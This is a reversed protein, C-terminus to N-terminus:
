SRIASWATLMASRTTNMAVPSYLRSWIRSSSSSSQPAGSGAIFRPAPPRRGRPAGPRLGRPRRAGHAARHCARLLVRRSACAAPPRIGLESEARSWAALEVEVRMPVLWGVRLGGFLRRVPSSSVGSALGVLATNLAIANARCEICGDGREVLHDLVTAAEAVPLHVRRTLHWTTITRDDM